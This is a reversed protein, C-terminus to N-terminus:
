AVVELIASLHRACASRRTFLEEVTFTLDSETGDEFVVHSVTDRPQLDADSDLFLRYGHVIMSERRETNWERYTREVLRCPLSASVENDEFIPENHNDRGIETKRHIICTHIFWGDIAM